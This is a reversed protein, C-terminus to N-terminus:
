RKNKFLQKEIEQINKDRHESIVRGSELLLIRDCFEVARTFNQEILIISTGLVERVTTLLRFTSLVDLPALGASPEDLIVLKPNGALTMALSLAQREGGSLKDARLNAKKSDTLLPIMAILRERHTSDENREFALRINEQVSLTRFVTGGQQMMGIGDRSIESSKRGNMLEGAFAIDGSRYPLLNMIAKGLTSKGSGNLGVIGVAEGASMTLCIDHIVDMGKKYGGSLHTLQLMPYMM